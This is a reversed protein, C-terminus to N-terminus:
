KNWSARINTGGLYNQMTTDLNSQYIQFLEVILRLDPVNERSRPVNTGFVYLFTGGEYFIELFIDDM